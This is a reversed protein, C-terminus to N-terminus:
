KLVKEFIKIIHSTLAIPRYNVADAKSNGKHHPAIMSQKLSHPITGEVFCKKWLITIPVALAEKCNKLLIAPFGDPGAAATPSIENIASTIDEEASNM